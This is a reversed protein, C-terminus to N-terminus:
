LITIKVNNNIQEVDEVVLIFKKIYLKFEQELNKINSIVFKVDQKEYSLVDYLADLNNGYFEENNLQSKILEFMEDKNSIKSFDLVIEM